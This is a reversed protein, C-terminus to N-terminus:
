KGGGFSLVELGPRIAENSSSLKVTLDFLRKTDRRYALKRSQINELASVCRLFPEGSTMVLRVDLLYMGLNQDYFYM